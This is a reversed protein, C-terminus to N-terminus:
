SRLHRGFARRDEFKGVLINHTNRIEEVHAM